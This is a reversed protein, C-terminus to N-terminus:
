RQRKRVRIVGCILPAEDGDAKGCSPTDEEESVGIAARILNPDDGGTEGGSSFGMGVLFRLVSTWSSSLGSYSRVDSFPPTRPLYKADAVAPVVMTRSSGPTASAKESPALTLRARREYRRDLTLAAFATALGARAARGYFADAQAELGGSRPERFCGPM